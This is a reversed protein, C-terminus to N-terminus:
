PLSLQSKRLIYARPDATWQDLEPDALQLVAQRLQEHTPKMARVYFLPYFFWLNKPVSEPSEGKKM